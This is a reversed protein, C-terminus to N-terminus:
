QNLYQYTPTTTGYVVAPDCNNPTGAANTSKSLANLPSAEVSAETAPITTPTGYISPPSLDGSIGWYNIFAKNSDALFGPAGINNKVANWVKAPNGTYFATSTINYLLDESFFPYYGNVVNELTPLAGDVALVGVGGSGSVPTTPGLAFTSAGNESSIIGIAPRPGGTAYVSGLYDTVNGSGDFAELCGAINGTSTEEIVAPAASAPTGFQNEAPVALDSSGCGEGLWFLEASAETGSGFERRCIAFNTTAADPFAIAGSDNVFLNGSPEDGTMIAALQAHTLSPVGSATNGSLGQGVQLARYFTNNVPVAWVPALGPKGTLYKSILSASAGVLPGEVDSVGGTINVAPTYTTFSCSQHVTYAQAGGLTGTTPTVCNSDALDAPNIFLLTQSNQGNIANNYLPISGNQSGLESEKFFAIETAPSSLGLSSNAYCYVMWQAHPNKTDAADTYLDIAGTSANCLAAIGSVTTHMASEFLAVNVATSGGVYVNVVKGAANDAAYQSIDIANASTAASAILAAAVAKQIPSM